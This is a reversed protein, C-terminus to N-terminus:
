IDQQLQLLMVRQKFFYLTIMGSYDDAFSIIYRSGGKAIPEIPGSSDSHVLQLPKTAKADPEHNIREITKGEICTQCSFNEKNTIKMGICKKELSKVDQVNCHGLAVHWDKLTRSSVGALTTSNLSVMNSHYLRGKKNVNFITRNPTSIYNSDPGFNVKMGRETMAHVSIINQKYTPICLADKLIVSRVNGESDEINVQADGRAKVVESHKSGDALEIIHKKPDFNKFKNSDYVIHATAGCDVLYNDCTNTDESM